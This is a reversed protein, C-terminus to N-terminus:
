RLLQLVIAPVQNAQALMATAAQSIIQNRTFVMMEEAMDLDRIRSEAATLNEKAVSLNNITHDLRNQYAGLKSREASVEKIAKDITMLADQAKAETSVDVDNLSAFQSTVPNGSEDQGQAGQGLASARMDNISVQMIQNANAGIQMFAAGSTVNITAVTGSADDNFVVTVGTLGSATPDYVVATNTTSSLTQSTIGTTINKVTYQYDRALRVDSQTTGFLTVNASFNAESVSIKNALGTETATFKFGGNGSNLNQDYSVTLKMGANQALVNLQNVIDAVTMSPNLTLSISKSGQSVAIVENGTINGNFLSNLSGYTNLTVNAPSGDDNYTAQGTGLIHAQGVQTLNIEFTGTTLVVGTVSASVVEDGATIQAKYGLSGTLLNKTNFETTQAIRNIETILQSVESQIAARDDDTLTGNAAQAALERMRQLISHVENLGGEATQILSIADQANRIAQGLGKIQGRMKESIALGAADDAARNIRLGSSLRELSRQLANNVSTLNRYTNLASINHNIIM